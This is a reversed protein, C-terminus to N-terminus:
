GGVPPVAPTGPAAPPATVPSNAPRATWWLLALLLMGLAAAALLIPRITSRLPM